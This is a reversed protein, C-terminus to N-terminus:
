GGITTGPWTAGWGLLSADTSVTIEFPPTQLQQGNLGQFRPIDVLQAGGHQVPLHNDSSRIIQQQDLSTDQNPRTASQSLTTTIRGLLTSLVKLSTNQTQHIEKAATTITTLKEPPLSLIMRMSDLLAGLFVLQQTPFASCKERKITFGLNQLLELM